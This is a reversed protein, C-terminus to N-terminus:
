RVKSRVASRRSALKEYAECYRKGMVVYSARDFHTCKPADVYTLGVTSVCTTNKVKDPVSKLANRVKNIGAVREPEPDPDDAGIGFLQGLDGVVFPLVPMGLDERVDAILRHLKGEYTDPRDDKFCDSEGQHWLVGKLTGREAAWRAKLISGRYLGTGKKLLDIRKGGYATPLLGVTVGPHRRLYEKAFPIGPGFSNPRGPRIHLPHASPQWEYKRPNAVNTRVHVVHPVPVKDELLLHGPQHPKIGGAMNSQGMLLFIHFKEKDAPITWDGGDRESPVERGEEIAEEARPCASATMMALLILANKM